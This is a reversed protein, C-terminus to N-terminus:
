VGTVCVVNAFGMGTRICMGIISVIGFVSGSGGFMGISGGGMVCMSVLDVWSMYVVSDVVVSVWGMMSEMTMMSMVSMSMMSDVVWGAVSFVSDMVSSFVTRISMGCGM